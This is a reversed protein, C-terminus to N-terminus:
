GRESVIRTYKADWAEKEHDTPPRCSQPHCVPYRNGETDRFTVVLDGECKFKYGCSVCTTHAFREGFDECNESPVPCTSCPM